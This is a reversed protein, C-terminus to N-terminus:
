RSIAIGYQTLDRLGYDDGAVQVLEVRYHGLQRRDPVWVQLVPGTSLSGAM